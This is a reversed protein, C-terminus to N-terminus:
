EQCRVKQQVTWLAEMIYLAAYAAVSLPRSRVPEWRVNQNFTVSLISVQNEGSRQVRVTDNNRAMYNRRGSLTERTTEIYLM